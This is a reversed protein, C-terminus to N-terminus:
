KGGEWGRGGNGKGEGLLGRLWEGLERGGDKGEVLGKLGKIRKRGVGENEGEMRM